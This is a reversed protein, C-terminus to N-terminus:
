FGIWENMEFLVHKTELKIYIIKLWKLSRAFTRSVVELPFLKRIFSSWLQDSEYLASPLLNISPVTM